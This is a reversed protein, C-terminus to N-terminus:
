FHKTRPPDVAPKSRATCTCTLTRTEIFQSSSSPVAAHTGFFTSLKAMGDVSAKKLKEVGQSAKPEKKRKVSTGESVTSTRKRDKKGAVGGSPSPNLHHRQLARVHSELPTFDFSAILATRIDAPLYQSVLDCALQTRGLALLDEHKDEMLENKALGRILCRSMETIRPTALAAVKKTLQEVLREQSYRFVTIDTTIEKTECIRRMAHMTCDLAGFTVIDDPTVIFSPDQSGSPHTAEAFKTAAEEFIDDAPRFNVQGGGEVITAGLIPILLFLPDIPTMVLLRGDSVVEEGIFWSRAGPPAVTQVELIM